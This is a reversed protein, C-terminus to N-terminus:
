AAIEKPMADINVLYVRFTLAVVEPNADWSRAGHLVEWLNSFARQPWRLRRACAEDHVFKGCDTVGEALADEYSIDQLREIKTATVILTLRSAWRPMHISPTWTTPADPNSARYWIVKGSGDKYGASWVYHAERVWLRDGPRVRQWGTPKGGWGKCNPCEECDQYEPDAAVKGRGHCHSCSKGGRLRLRRTMTKGTGPAEVERLLGRVMQASMIIPHDTM